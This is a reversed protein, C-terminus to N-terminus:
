RQEVVHVSFSPQLLDSFLAYLEGARGRSTYFAFTAGRAFLAVRVHGVGAHVRRPRTHASQCVYIYIHTHTHTHTYIYIYIYIYIYVCMYIYRFRATHVSWRPPPPPISVNVSLSFFVSFSPSLLFYRLTRTHAHAPSPALSLFPLPLSLPLPAAPLAALVHTVHLARQVYACRLKNCHVYTVANRALKSRTRTSRARAASHVGFRV